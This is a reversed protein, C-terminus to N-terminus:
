YPRRKLYYTEAKRAGRFTNYVKEFIVKGNSYMRFRAKGNELTEITSVTEKRIFM